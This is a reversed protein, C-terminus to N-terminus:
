TCTSKSVLDALIFHMCSLVHVLVNYHRCDVDSVSETSQRRCKHCVNLQFKDQTCSDSLSM